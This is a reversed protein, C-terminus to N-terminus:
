SQQMLVIVKFIGLTKYQGKSQAEADQEMNTYDWSDIQISKALGWIQHKQTLKNNLCTIYRLRAHRVTHSLNM